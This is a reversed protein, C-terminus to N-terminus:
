AATAIPHRSIVLAFVGAEIMFLAALIPFIVPLQQDTLAAKTLALGAVLFHTLNATAIARNYIGGILAGKAMWNLMAFGYYAAGLLQLLLRVVMSDNIGLFTIVNDPAFTLCIGIAALLIATLSLILKTNM